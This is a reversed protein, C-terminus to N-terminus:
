MLFLHRKLVEESTLRSKAVISRFALFAREHDSVPTARNQCVAVFHRQAPTSAPREGSELEMYFRGHRLLLERYRDDLPVPTASIPRSGNSLRIRRGTRPTRYVMPHM